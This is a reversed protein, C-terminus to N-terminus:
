LDLTPYIYNEHDRKLNLKNFVRSDKNVAYNAIHSLVLPAVDCVERYCENIIPIFCRRQELKCRIINLNKAICKLDQSCLGCFLRTRKLWHCTIRECRSEFFCQIERLRLMFLEYKGCFEECFLSALILSNYLYVYDILAQFLFRLAECHDWGNDYYYNGYGRFREYNVV